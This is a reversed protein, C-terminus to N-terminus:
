QAQKIHLKMSMRWSGGSLDVAWVPMVMTSQYNREFGNESLSVIEVPFTWIGAPRDWELLIEVNQYPDYLRLGDAQGLVDKTTLPYKTSGAELFREGGTGLLSFNWEVGFDFLGDITGELVYDVTVPGEGQPLVVDKRVALPLGKEGQWYHGGREMSLRIAKKEKGIIGRYPEKVFDGPEFYKGRYFSELTVDSGMVHDILSGRRYWDYHLYENLGEEKAVVMEHITKTGNAVNASAAQKIKKHYGEYRRKLTAMINASSPKYDLGYMAGGEKLLFSAELENNSLVAEDYGDFNVDEIYGDAFPKTPDLLKRAEILHRYVSGRLHPLYLGGFVGHWYSDNCQAMYVHRKAETNRGAKKSLRLAKKHMDNSEAYKVLFNKFYGGTLFRRYPMDGENLMDGYTKSIGAPLSWEGMEKYSECGLYIRSVPRKKKMYESFTTTTLWSSNKTLYEFFSRLWNEKKYVYDFTGPWLGFKEGDDGFVVLDGGQGHVDKLYADLADMQKFPIAYRLFELGPFISLPHGEYETIFYSYLDKEDLGIAKFHNDDVLTFAVGAKHLVKPIYPEYVREALWMGKPREGFVDEMLDMHTKIQAIGDEESLLSFVPEYMGGSIIELQGRKKMKKLLKIYEPKHERLWSFLFGSFHLNIKIEEFDKLVDFFPMYSKAYAEELIFDMNGVPQHNHICLIFNM